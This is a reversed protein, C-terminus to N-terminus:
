ELPLSFYFTSGIGPKSELWMQGGHRAIIERSIYLGLGLGESKYDQNNRVQYFQEFIRSQQDPSIGPGEDQVSVVAMRLPKSQGESTPEAQYQVKVTVQKGSASYKIANSVLNNIVQELHIEDARIFLAPCDAEFNLKHHPNADAQQQIIQRTLKIIDVDPTLKVNFKGTQIRSIDVLQDILSSMRNTQQVISGVIRMPRDIQPFNDLKLAAKNNTNIENNFKSINSQLRSLDRQLIQAFGKISTLPTRLEHSVAALFESRNLTKSNGMRLEYNDFIKRIEPAEELLYNLHRNARVDEEYSLNPHMEIWQHYIKIYSLFATLHNYYFSSLLRRMEAEYQHWSQPRMFAFVAFAMLALELQPASDPWSSMQPNNRLLSLHKTLEVESPVPTCLLNFIERGSLGLAMLACSHCVLAYNNRCFLSLYALLKEKFLAPLPNNIHAFLTHQWLHDLIAPTEEVASFFVPIFGLEKNIEEKIETQTRM